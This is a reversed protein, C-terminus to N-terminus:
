KEREKKMLDSKKMLQNFDIGHGHKGKLYMGNIKKGAESNYICKLAYATTAMAMCRVHRVCRMYSTGRFTIWM